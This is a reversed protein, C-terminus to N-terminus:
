FVVHNGALRASLQRAFTHVDGESAKRLTKGWAVGTVVVLMGQENAYDIKREFQRWFAPNIREAGSGIFPRNGDRDTDDL